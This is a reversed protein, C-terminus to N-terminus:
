CKGAHKESVRNSERVCNNSYTKGNCGCVPQFIKFCIHPVKVCKGTQDFRGCTGNKFECFLGRGCHIGAIGGCTQGLKAAAQTEDLSWTLAAVTMAAFLLTKRFM